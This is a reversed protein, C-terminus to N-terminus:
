VRNNYSRWFAQAEENAILAAAPVEKQENFFKIKANEDCMRKMMEGLDSKWEQFQRLIFVM